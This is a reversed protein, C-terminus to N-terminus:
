KAWVGSFNYHELFEYQVTPTIEKLACPFYSGYYVIKVLQNYKEIM